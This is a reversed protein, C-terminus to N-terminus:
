VWAGQAPLLRDYVSAAPLEVDVGPPPGSAPTFRAQLESLDPVQMDDLCRQLIADLARECAQEHALALLGVMTKCATAIDATEVLADWTRRWSDGPLLADRYSLNALAMPKRKLSHIIHRYDIVHCRQGRGNSRGRQLTLVSQTGLFCELRDDFLRVKLRHGILQSPVTYFVRRLTFASSSTVTVVTEEFADTRREPLRRLYPMEAELAARRRANRRGVLEAVFCRYAALDEFERSGRLLFAQSLATKLHNHASEVSGNEHGEGRNNRSPSMGYASCLDHYRATLDEATETNLNRYAASLSDSRHIEPAGGLAWLANQLGEALAVFSEGGLIVEAHQWRSCALTFHYLRHPLPVGAIRVDLDNADTFDSLGMRGPPHEQPFMVAQEPGQEARWRRIRRELTRRRPRWDVDPQTAELHELLTVPKLAPENVLLPEIVESWVEELPDTRTRWHRMDRPTGSEGKEIRRATRESIGARAAATQQTRNKRQNM